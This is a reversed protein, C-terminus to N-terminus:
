TDRLRYFCSAYALIGKSNSTTWGTTSYAADAPAFSIVGTTAITASAGGTLHTSNDQAYPFHAYQQTTPRIETPMGSMTFLTSNSTGAGAPLVLNVINGQRYWNATSGAPDSSFGGYTVTYNGSEFNESYRPISDVTWIVVDDSDTLRARYDFSAEPDLYIPAFEGSADAVVPQAHASADHAATQYVSQDTTTGTQYFYLKAGPSVVATDFAVQRPLFFPKKLAM